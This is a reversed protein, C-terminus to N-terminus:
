DQGTKARKYAELFDYLASYADNCDDWLDFWHKDKISIDHLEEETKELLELAETLQKEDKQEMRISLCTKISM